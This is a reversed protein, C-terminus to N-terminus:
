PVVSLVLRRYAYLSPVGDDKVELVVHVASPKTVKPAILYAEMQGSNRITVTGEYDGPEKYYFWRYSLTDGDPDNSGLASLEVRDGSQAHRYIIRKSAVGEFGAVPKHNAGECSDTVSWDMRAAFDHQFAKRWRFLAAHRSAKYTEDQYQWTDAAETYMWYDQFKVQAETYKKAFTAPNKTKYNRFRGGWGGYHMKDPDSLGNPVLYLFAPTDGEYKWKRDPYLKGLPGHSQIHKDVWENTFTNINAGTVEPPFPRAERVSIAQFQDVSRIWHIDPFNHCAWAASDDQGAIDYVRIRSVFRALEPPSRSDRVDWLAQALDTAAGWVTIWVPRPDSKDVVATIHKSGETSKGKGVSTMYRTEVGAKVLRSLQRAPPYGKAHRILNPYVKAYAEIREHIQQPNIGGKVSTAVLGELDFENAYLLLRILSQQDDPDGGIDTLVLLRHRAQAGVVNLNLLLALAIKLAIKPLRYAHARGM